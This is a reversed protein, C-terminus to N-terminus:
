AFNTEKIQPYHQTQTNINLLKKSNGDKSERVDKSFPMNMYYPALSSGYRAHSVVKGLFTASSSSSNNDEKSDDYDIKDLLADSLNVEEFDFRMAETLAQERLIM